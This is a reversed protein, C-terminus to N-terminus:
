HTEAADGCRFWSHASFGRWSAAHCRLRARRLITLYSSLKQGPKVEVLGHHTQVSRNSVREPRRYCRCREACCAHLSLIALFLEGCFPFFSLARGTNSLIRFGFAGGPWGSDRALGSSTALGAMRLAFCLRRGSTEPSSCDHDGFSHRARKHILQVRVLCEECM